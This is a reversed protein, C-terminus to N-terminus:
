STPSLTGLRGTRGDKLGSPVSPPAHSSARSQSRPGAPTEPHPIPSIGVPSQLHRGPGASSPRARYVVAPGQPHHGPGTSSPRARYVVAPGQLRRGPGTSSPWARYVVAPGQLRRGPGTSSPRARYVVAPGQLRRGPGTSSPRARCIVGDKHFVSAIGQLSGDKGVMGPVGRVVHGGPGQLAGPVTPFVPQRPQTKM